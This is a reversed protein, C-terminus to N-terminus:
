REHSREQTSHRRIADDQHRAARMEREIKLNQPMVKARELIGEATKIVRRNESLAQTLRDREQKIEVEAQPDQCRRLRNYCKKRAETLDAELTRRSALFAAADDVTHLKEGAILRAQRSIEDLRRCEERMEPSLPRHHSNKPLIGLEYCYRLYLGRLGGIKAAGKLNGRCQYQKAPPRREAEDRKQQWYLISGYRCFNSRLREQLQPLDYAEGLRFLRVAKESGIRKLTAYKRNPDDSLEYGMNRLAAKFDRGTSSITLATDIADRMLNFKTPEGNKEAFYISRPTHGKPSKIVSLGYERCLADSVERMQYYCRRDDNFKKGSVFSVSNILFHNHLHQKDLHTAVLVQYRDGWLRKALKVGLEHCQEATVEGPLFSQYGHYAVNGKLKGFHRKVETMQEYAHEPDCGIGSVFFFREDASVTKEGNEAYHLAQQLDRYETKEPNGAYSVLRKLSDRVPWIKTTAM